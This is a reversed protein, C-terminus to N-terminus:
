LMTVRRNSKPFFVLETVPFCVEDNWDPKVGNILVSRNKLWRSNSPKQPMSGNLHMPLHPVVELLFRLAQM